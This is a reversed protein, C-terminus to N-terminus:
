IKNQPIFIYALNKLRKKSKQRDSPAIINKDGIRDTNIIKPAINILPLGKKQWCRGPLILGSVPSSFINLSM